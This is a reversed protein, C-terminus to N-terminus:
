SASNVTCFDKPRRMQPRWGGTDKIESGCFSSKNLIPLLYEILCNFVFTIEVM